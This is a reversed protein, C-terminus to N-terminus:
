AARRPAISERDRVVIASSRGTRVWRSGRQDRLTQLRELYETLTAQDFGTLHEAKVGTTLDTIQQILNAQSMTREM